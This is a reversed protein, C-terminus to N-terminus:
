ASNVSPESSQACRTQPLVQRLAAMGPPAIVGDTIACTLDYRSSLEDAKENLLGAFARGVNDFGIVALRLHM